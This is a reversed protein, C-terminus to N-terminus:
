RNDQKPNSAHSVRFTLKKLFLHYIVFLDTQTNLDVKEAELSENITNMIGENPTTELSRRILQKKNIL